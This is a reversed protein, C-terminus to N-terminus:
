DPGSCPIVSTLIGVILVAGAAMIASSGIWLPLARQKSFILWVGCAFMVVASVAWLVGVAAYATSVSPWEPLINRSASWIVFSCILFVLVMGFSRRRPNTRGSDM